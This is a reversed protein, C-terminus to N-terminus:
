SLPSGFGEADGFAHVDGDYTVLWYGEGSPTSVIDHVAAASTGPELSGLDTAAGFAFVRGAGTVAWYGAGSPHAALGTFATWGPHDADGHWAADGFAYVQGDFGLIWYGSGSPTPVLDTAMQRAPLTDPQGVREAVGYAHVVGDAGVTWYGEGSPHAAFAVIAASIPDSTNSDHVRASGYAHVTGDAALLWYGDGNPHATLGEIPEDGASFSGFYGADGYAAVQGDVNVMWYGNGSPSRDFGYWHVGDNPTIEIEPADGWGEDWWPEDTPDPTSVDSIEGGVDPAEDEDECDPDPLADLGPIEVEGSALEYPGFDVLDFEYDPVAGWLGGVHASTDVGWQLAWDVDSCDLALDADVWPEGSAGFELVGGYVNASVTIKIGARAFFHGDVDVEPGIMGADWDWDDLLGWEGDRYYGGLGFEAEAWAGVTADVSADATALWTLEVTFDMGAVIPIGAPGPFVFDRGFTFLEVDGEETWWGDVRGHLVIEATTELKVGAEVENVAVSIPPISWSTEVGIDADMYLTPVVYLLGEAELLAEWGTDEDGGGDEWLVKQFSWGEPLSLEARAEDSEMVEAMPDIRIANSFDAVYWVDDLGAPETEAVAVLGNTQLATIRRLFGDDETGVLVQGVELGVQDAPCNFSLVTVSGDTPTAAAEFCPADRLVFVDNSVLTDEYWTADLYDAIEDRTYEPPPQTEEQGNAFPDVAPTPDSPEGRVYTCSTLLLAPLLTLIRIGKEFARATGVKHDSSM